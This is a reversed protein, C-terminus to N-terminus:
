DVLSNETLRILAAQIQSYSLLIRSNILNILRTFYFLCALNQEIKNKKEMKSFPFWGQITQFIRSLSNEIMNNEQLKVSWDIGSM